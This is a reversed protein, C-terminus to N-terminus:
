KKIAGHKDSRYWLDNPTQDGLGGTLKIMSLVDTSAIKNPPGGGVRTPKRTFDIDTKGLANVTLWGIHNFRSGMEKGHPRSSSVPVDTSARLVMEGQKMKGALVGLPKEYEEFKTGHAQVIVHYPVKQLMNCIFTLNSNAEGYISQSTGELLVAAQDASGIGLADGACATWTDVCLIYGKPVKSSDLTWVEADDSTETALKSWTMDREHNWRMPQASTSRLFGKLFSVPHNTGFYHIRARAAPEDKLVYRIASLGNDSDVWIVNFGAKAAEAVYTSKGTKTDGVLLLHVPDSAQPISDIFPM